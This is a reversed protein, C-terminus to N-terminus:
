LFGAKLREEIGLQRWDGWRGRQLWNVMKKRAREEKELSALKRKWAGVYGWEEIEATALLHHETFAFPDLPDSCCLSCKTHCHDQTLASIAALSTPVLPFVSPLSALNHSPLTPYHDRREHGKSTDEIFISGYPNGSRTPNSYSDTRSVGDHSGGM